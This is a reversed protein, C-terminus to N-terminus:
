TTDLIRRKVYPICLPMALVLLACTVALVIVRQFILESSQLGNSPKTMVFRPRLVYLVIVVVVGLAVSVSYKNRDVAAASVGPDRSSSPNPDDTRLESEWTKWM